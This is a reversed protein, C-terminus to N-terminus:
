RSVFSGTKSPACGNIVGFHIFHPPEPSERISYVQSSLIPEIAASELLPHSTRGTENM